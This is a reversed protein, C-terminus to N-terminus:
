SIFTNMGHKTSTALVKYPTLKLDLNEKRLLQFFFGCVCFLLSSHLLFAAEVELLFTYQVYIEVTRWQFLYRTFAQEQKGIKKTQKNKFRCRIMAEIFFFFDGLTQSGQFINAVYATNVAKVLRAGSLSFWSCLLVLIHILLEWRIWSHFLRFFLNIKVYIM